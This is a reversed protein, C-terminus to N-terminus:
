GDRVLENERTDCSPGTSRYYDTRRMEEPCLLELVPSTMFTTLLAMTVIMSFLAPSIVRIDLGINLVVLELLGRTNMLSGIALSDRWPMGSLRAALSTGGLKGVVAVAVILLCLGWMGGGSLHGISTRLGTYAFFIPLLLPVTLPEIQERV